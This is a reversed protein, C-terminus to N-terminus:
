TLSYSVYVLTGSGEQSDGNNYLNFEYKRTCLAPSTMWLIARIGTLGFDTLCM